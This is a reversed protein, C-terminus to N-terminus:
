GGFRFVVGITGVFYMEPFVLSDLGCKEEVEFLTNLIPLVKESVEQDDHCSMLRAATLSEATCVPVPPEPTSPVQERLVQHPRGRRFRKHRNGLLGRAGPQCSGAAENRSQGTSM